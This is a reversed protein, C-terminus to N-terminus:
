QTSSCLLCKQATITVNNLTRKCLIDLDIKFTNQKFVLLMSDFIIVSSHLPKQSYFIEESTAVKKIQSRTEARYIISVGFM